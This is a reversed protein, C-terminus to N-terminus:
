KKNREQELIRSRLWYPSYDEGVSNVGVAQMLGVLISRHCLNADECSCAIAVKEKMSRKYLENLEQKAQPNNIIEILYSDMFYKVFTDKNWMGARKLTEVTNTINKSPALNKFEVVNELNEYNEATLENDVVVVTYDKEVAEKLKNISLTRIM